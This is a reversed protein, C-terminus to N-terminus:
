EDNLICINNAYLDYDVIINSFMYTITSAELCLISIRYKKIQCKKRPFSLFVKREPGHLVMSLGGPPASAM